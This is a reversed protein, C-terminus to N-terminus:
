VWIVTLFSSSSTKITSLPRFAFSLITRSPTRSTSSPAFTSYLNRGGSSARLFWFNWASYCNSLSEVGFVVSSHERLDEVRGANAITMEILRRNRSHGEQFSSRVLQAIPLNTKVTPRSSGLAPNVRFTPRFPRRARSNRSDRWLNILPHHLEFAHAIHDDVERPIRGPRDCSQGVSAPAGQSQVRLLTEM